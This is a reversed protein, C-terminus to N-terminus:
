SGIFGCRKDFGRDAIIVWFFFPFLNSYCLVYDLFYYYVDGM